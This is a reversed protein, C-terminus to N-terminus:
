AEHQIIHRNTTNSHTVM